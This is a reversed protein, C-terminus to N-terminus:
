DERLKNLANEKVISVRQKSIGLEEGIDELTRPTKILFLQSIIYRSRIDLIEVKNLMRKILDQQIIDEEPGAIFNEQINLLQTAADDANYKEPIDTNSILDRKRRRYQAAHYIYKRLSKLTEVELEKQTIDANDAYISLIACMGVNQLEEKPIGHNTYYRLKDKFLSEMLKLAYNETLNFSM